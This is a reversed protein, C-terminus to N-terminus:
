KVSWWGKEEDRGGNDASDVFKGKEVVGATGNGRQRILRRMKEEGGKATKWM